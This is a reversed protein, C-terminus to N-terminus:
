YLILHIRRVQPTGFGPVITRDGGQGVVVSSQVCATRSYMRSTLMGLGAEVCYSVKEQCMVRGRSADVRHSGNEPLIPIEEFVM